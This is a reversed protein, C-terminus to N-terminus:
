ELEVVICGDLGADRLSSCLRKATPRSNFPGIRLKYWVGMDGLDEMKILNKHSNNSSDLIENFRLLMEKYKNNAKLRTDVSSVQVGFYTEKFIIEDNSVDGTFDDVIISKINEDNLNNPKSIPYIFEIVLDKNHQDLSNEILEQVPDELTNNVLQITPNFEQANFEFMGSDQIFSELDIQDEQVSISHNKEDPLMFHQEKIINEKINLDINDVNSINNERLNAFFDRRIDEDKINFDNTLIITPVSIAKKEYIGYTQVTPSAPELLELAELLIKDGRDYEIINDNYSLAMSEEAIDLESGDTYSKDIIEYENNIEVEPYVIKTHINLDLDSDNLVDKEAFEKHPYNKDKTLSIVEYQSRQLYLITLIIIFIFLIIFFIKKKFLMDRMSLM